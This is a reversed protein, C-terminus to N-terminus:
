WIHPTFPRRLRGSGGHRQRVRSARTVQILLKILIMGYGTYSIRCITVKKEGFVGAKPYTGRSRGDLRSWFSCLALSRKQRTKIIYVIDLMGPEQYDDTSYITHFWYTGKSLM